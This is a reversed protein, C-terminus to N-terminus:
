HKRMNNRRTNAKRGSKRSKRATVGKITNDVGKVVRKGVKNGTTLVNSAVKGVGSSVTRVSNGSVKLLQNLPTYLRELLGRSSRRSKRPM